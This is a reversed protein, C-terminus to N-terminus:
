RLRAGGGTLLFSAIIEETGMFELDITEIKM